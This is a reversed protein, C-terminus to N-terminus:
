NAGARLNLTGTKSTITGTGSATVALAPVSNIVTVVNAVSTEAAAIRVAVATTTNTTVATTQTDTGNLFTGSTSILTATSSPAASATMRKSSSPWNSITNIYSVLNTLNNSVATALGTRNITINGGGDVFISNSVQNFVFTVTKGNAQTGIYGVVSDATLTLVLSTASLSITAQSLTTGQTHTVTINNPLIATYTIGGLNGSVTRKFLM